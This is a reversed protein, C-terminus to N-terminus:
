NNTKEFSVKDAKVVIKMGGMFKFEFKEGYVIEELCDDEDKPIESDRPFIEFYSIGEFRIQFQVINKEDIYYKWFLTLISTKIIYDIRLFEAANHLDYIEGQYDIEIIQQNVVEVLKFNELKM